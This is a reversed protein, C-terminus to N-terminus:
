YNLRSVNFFFFFESQSLSYTYSIYTNLFEETEKRSEVTVVTIQRCVTLAVVESCKANLFSSAARLLLLPM